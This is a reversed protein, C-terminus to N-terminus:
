LSLLARGMHEPKLTETDVTIRLHHPQSRAVSPLAAGEVTWAGQQKFKDAPTYRFRHRKV